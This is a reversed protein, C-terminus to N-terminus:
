NKRGIADRPHIEYSFLGIGSARNPLSYARYRKARCSPRAKERQCCFAQLEGYSAIVDVLMM